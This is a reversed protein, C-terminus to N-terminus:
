VRLNVVLLSLLSASMSREERRGEGGGGGKARTGIGACRRISREVDERCSDRKEMASKGRREPKTDRESSNRNLLISCSLRLDGHELGDPLEVDVDDVRTASLNVCRSYSM